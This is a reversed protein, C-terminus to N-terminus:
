LIKESSEVIINFTWPKPEKGTTEVYQFKLEPHKFTTIAAAISTTKFGGTTDLIIDSENFEQKAKKILKEYEDNLQKVDKFDINGHTEIKVNKDYQHLLNSVACLMHYSGPEKKNDDEEDVTDASGILYIRQLAGKDLHPKVARLLQQTNSRIGKETFARIDEEINGTTEIQNDKDIHILIKGDPEQSPPCPRLASVAMILVKHPLVGPTSQLTRYHLLKQGTKYLFFAVLFFVTLSISLSTLFGFLGCDPSSRFQTFLCDGKLADGIWGASVIGILSLTTVKFFPSNYIEKLFDFIQTSKLILKNNM